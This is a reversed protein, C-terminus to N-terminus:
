KSTSANDTEKTNNALWQAVDRITFVAIQQDHNLIQVFDRYIRLKVHCCPTKYILDSQKM